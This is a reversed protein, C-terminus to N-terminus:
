PQTELQKETPLPIDLVPRNKWGPTDFHWWETRTYTFGANTMIKKLTQRNHLLQPPLDYFDMHASKTFDDFGTPMPLPEGKLNCPTLDVAMGRNHRSGKSPPAVYSPNPVAQWLKRQASLPRYCDWLLFTFPEPLAAAARVAKALRKIVDTHLYCRGSPYIIQGTFNNETAYRMDVFVGKLTSQTIEVLGAEQLTQPTQATPQGWCLAPLLLLFLINKM